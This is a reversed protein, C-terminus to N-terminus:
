RWTMLSSGEYESIDEIAFLQLAGSRVSGLLSLRHFILDNKSARTGLCRNFELAANMRSLKQRQVSASKYDFTKNYCVSFIKWLRCYHVLFM